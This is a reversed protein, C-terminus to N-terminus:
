IAFCINFRTRGQPAFSFSSHTAKGPTWTQHPIGTFTCHWTATDPCHKGKIIESEGDGGSKCANALGLCSQLGKDSFYNCCSFQMLTVECVELLLPYGVPEFM